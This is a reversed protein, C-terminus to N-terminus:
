LNTIQLHEIDSLPVVWNLTHYMTDKKYGGNPSLKTDYRDGNERMYDRLKDTRFIWWYKMYIINDTTYDTLGYCWWYSKSNLISSSYSDVEVNSIKEILLCNDNEFFSLKDPKRTKVEVCRFRRNDNFDLRFDGWQQYEKSITHIKDKLNTCNERFIKHWLNTIQNTISWEFDDRFYHKTTTTDTTTKAAIEIGETM